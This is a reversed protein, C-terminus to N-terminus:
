KSINKNFRRQLYHFVARLGMAEGGEPRGPQSRVNWAMLDFHVWPIQGPLFEQLFLGATIAGGFSGAASNAIDAVKSDLMQRYPKHLPLRWIPDYEIRSASMLELAVEDDNTFFAPVILPAWSGVWGIRNFVAYTPILTVAGPLIITAIVIMFLVNKRPIPFRAFGYAVVAGTGVVGLTSLAAYMLTNALLRPFNVTNWAETFNEWQADFTWNRELTRWRGQWHILGAEANDPDLFEAYERRKTVLAWAHVDGGNSCDPTTLNEADYGWPIPQGEADCDGVQYIDYEEGEFEITEESSPWWPAGINTIQNNTKLSTVIGYGLPMLFTLLTVITLSTQWITSFLNRIKKPIVRRPKTYNATDM